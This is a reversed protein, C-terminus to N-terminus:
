FTYGLGVGLGSTGVKFRYFIKGKGPEKRYGIDILPYVSARTYSHDGDHSPEEKWEEDITPVVAATLEFFKNSKGYLATLGLPVGYFTDDFRYIFGTRFRIINRGPNERITVEYNISWFGWFILTGIDSHIAHKYDVSSFSNDIVSSGPKLYFRSKDITNKEYNIVSNKKIHNSIGKDNVKMTSYSCADTFSDNSCAIFDGENNIILDFDQSKM